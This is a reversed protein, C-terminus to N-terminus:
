KRNMTITKEIVLNDNVYVSIPIQNAGAKLSIDATYTGDEKATALVSGIYVKVKSSTTFSKVTVEIDAKEKTYVNREEETYGSLSVACIKDNQHLSNALLQRYVRSGSHDMASLVFGGNPIISNNIETVAWNWDAAQKQNKMATVKGSANIVAEVGWQNTGTSEGYEQTYLVISDDARSTNMADAMLSQKTTTNYVGIITDNVYETDAIACALKEWDVFCLDFIMTGDTNTYANQLITRQDKADTLNTLDISAYVPIEDNVLINSLTTYKDMLETTTYYCGTMIFDLYQIYSVDSYGTEKAYLEEEPFGLCENYTFSEAAWNVGNQYLSEYWAGVYTALEITRNQKQEYSGVVQNLQATFNKIVLSRYCLWDLYYKGKVMTGDEQIAFADEPWQELKKGKSSLFESFQQKSLDSFDSYQNDYRGRDMVIGDVAYNELVDKVLSLEHNCVDPNGPNVYVLTSNRSSNLVSKLAGKDEPAQLVEAWDSSQHFIDIASDHTAINGEVFFNLSAYLKIGNKHAANVMEDLFDIQMDVDKNVNKTETMYVADSYTTKKYSVYGECGKVDFVFATIGAAKATEAMKNIKEATNLKKASSYQDIWMIVPKESEEQQTRFVILSQTTDKVTTDNQILSVDYYNAGKLAKMSYTFTGDSKVPVTMSAGNRMNDTKITYFRYDTMNSVSGSITIYNDKITTSAQNDLQLVPSSHVSKDQGTLKLLDATTVETNKIRLKVVDGVAFETALFSKYGATAYSNDCALLVFGDKPVTIDTSETFSPKAGNVSANIVQIVTMDKDVVVAVNTNISGKSVYPRNGYTFLSISNQFTVTGTFDPNVFTIEKQKGTSAFNSDFATEIVLNDVQYDIQASADNQATENVFSATIQDLTASKQNLLLSIQDGAKFKTALFSKYGATAYSSDCALLVFGDKPVAVDTSQNFAPKGGNVSANVVSTVKMNADVVVAVNTQISAENVFPRNKGSFLSISDKFTVSGGNATFVPNVFDIEKQTGDAAVVILTQGPKEDALVVSPKLGALGFMMCVTLVLAIIRKKM